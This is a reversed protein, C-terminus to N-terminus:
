RKSKARCLVGMIHHYCEYVFLIMDSFNSNIYMVLYLCHMVLMRDAVISFFGCWCKHSVLHLHMMIIHSESGEWGITMRRTSLIELDKCRTFHLAHDLVDGVM